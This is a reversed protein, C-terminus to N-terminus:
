REDQAARAAEVAADVAARLSAPDLREVPEGDVLVTPTGEVGGEFAAETVDETWAEWTRDAVCQAVADEEAGAQVALDVLTADPLGAGGEPPQVTFLADHFAAWTEVGEAMVCASANLARTSYATTSARDLFAIGRYEVAVDGSAAYDALLEANAAEFQRCAPCQFDEVVEVTVPADPAGVVFGGRETAAPPAAAADAADDRAQLVAIVAVVVVVVLVAAVGLQLGVSRTPATPPDPTRTKRPDNKKPDPQTQDPV